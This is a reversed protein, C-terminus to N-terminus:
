RHSSRWKRNSRSRTVHGPSQSRWALSCPLSARSHRRRLSGSKRGRWRQCRRTRNVRLRRPAFTSSPPSANTMPRRMAFRRWRIPRKGSQSVFVALGHEPLPTERYRMESAVDIDVPLRAYREIWYKAVLGAYYATGCASITVRSIKSLDVGLDPFRVRATTMDLYNALTHSIVEPQEHIEKAM